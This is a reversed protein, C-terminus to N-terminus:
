GTSAEDLFESPYLYAELNVYNNAFNIEKHTTSGFDETEQQSFDGETGKWIYSELTSDFSALPFSQQCSM